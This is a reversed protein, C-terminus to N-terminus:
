QLEVERPSIGLGKRAIVALVDTHVWPTIEKEGGEPMIGVRRALWSTEGSAKGRRDHKVIGCRLAIESMSMGRRGIADLVAERLGRNLVVPSACLRELESCLRTLVVDRDGRYRAIARESLARVPEYSELAAVVDRLGVREWASDQAGAARRCWRLQASSREGCLVRLCYANGELDTVQTDQMQSDVPTDHGGDTFPAIELDERRVRRCWHGRADELYHRCVLAANECPEDAALHAVLRRDCLTAADRDLLLVSGAFGPLALLERARGEVDLYGALPSGNAIAESRRPPKVIPSLPRKDDRRGSASRGRTPLPSPIAPPM